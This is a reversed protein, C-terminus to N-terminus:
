PIWLGNLPRHIPIWLISPASYETDGITTLRSTLTKVSFILIQTRKSFSSKNPIQQKTMIAENKVDSIEIHQLDPSHISPPFWIAFNFPVPPHTTNSNSFSLTSNSTSKICFEDDLVLTSVTM